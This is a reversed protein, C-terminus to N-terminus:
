PCAVWESTGDLFHQHKWVPLQAKVVDVLRACAAFAEGRHAAAVAVVLAADGVVLDGLRHSVAVADVPERATAEEVIRQLVQHATPHGVYRLDRVGRGGDHDRVVGAFTVVAGAAQHAVLDGHQGVDLPEDTVAARVVRCRPAQGRSTDNVATSPCDSPLPGTLRDLGTEAM